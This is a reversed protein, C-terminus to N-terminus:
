QEFSGREVVKLQVYQQVITLLNTTVWYLLVGGPLSWGIFAMLGSMIIMMTQQQPDNSLMRSPLYSTIVLLALIVLYAVGGLGFGYDAPRAGLSPIFLFGVKAIDKNTILMQFLAWFIPLQVLLPLCGGFPNVKHEAYLKMLEQQLKEKDRQYKKQLEKVKPQIRQLDIQARTQKVTLPLLAIRVLVTLLIISLGYSHTVGYLANLLQLLADEFPKLM